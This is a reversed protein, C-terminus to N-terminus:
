SKLVPNLAAFEKGPLFQPFDKGDCEVGIRYGSQDILAFDVIFPGCLTNVEFQPIFDIDLAAYKVYCLAFSDEIPSDYPPSYTAPMHKGNTKYDM